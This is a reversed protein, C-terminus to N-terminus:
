EEDVIQWVASERIVSGDPFMVGNDLGYYHYIVLVKELESTTTKKAKAYYNSM